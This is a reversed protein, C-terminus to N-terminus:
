GKSYSLVLELSAYRLLRMGLLVQHCDDQALAPRSRMGVAKEGKYSHSVFIPHEWIFKHLYASGM